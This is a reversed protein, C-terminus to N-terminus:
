NQGKMEGEMEGKEGQDRRDGMWRGGVEWRGGM